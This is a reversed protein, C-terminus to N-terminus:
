SSGIDHIVKSTHDMWGDMMTWSRLTGIQSETKSVISRPFLVLPLVDVASGHLFPVAKGDLARSLNDVLRRVGDTTVTRKGRLVGTDRGLDFIGPVSLNGRTSTNCGTGVVGVGVRAGDEQEGGLLRGVGDVGVGEVLEGAIAVDERDGGGARELLVNLVVFVLLVRADVAHHKVGGLGVQVRGIQGGVLQPRVALKGRAFDLQDTGDVRRVRAVVRAPDRHVGRAIIQIGQHLGAVADALVHDVRGRVHRHVRVVAERQDRRPDGVPVGLGALAQVAGVHARESEAALVHKGARSRVLKLQLPIDRAELQPIAAADLLLQEEARRRRATPM